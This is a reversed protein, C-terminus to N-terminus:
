ACNADAARELYQSGHKQWWNETIEVGINEWHRSVKAKRVLEEVRLREFFLNLSEIPMLARNITIVIESGVSRITFNQM